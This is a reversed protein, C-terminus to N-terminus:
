RSDGFGGPSGPNTKTQYICADGSTPARRCTNARSNGCNDLSRSPLSWLFWLQNLSGNATESYRGHASVCAHSLRQSLCISSAPDVLYGRGPAGGSAPVAGRPPSPRGGRAGSGPPGAPRGGVSRPLLPPRQAAKPPARAPSARERARQGKKREREGVCVRSLGVAARAAGGGGRCRGAPASGGEVAPRGIPPSAGPVAGAAAAPAVSTSSSFAVELRARAGAVPAGVVGPRRAGCRVPSAAVLLACVAAAAGVRRPSAGGGLWGVPPPVRRAARERESARGRQKQCMTQPWGRRRAARPRCGGPGPGLGAGAGRAVSM